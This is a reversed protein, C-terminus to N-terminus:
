WSGRRSACGPQGCRIAPPQPPRGCRRSWRAVQPDVAGLRALEGEIAGDDPALPLARALLNLAAAPGRGQAEYLFAAERLLRVRAGDDAAGVLRVECLGAAVALRGGGPPGPGAGRGGGGPQQGAGATGAGRGAGGRPGPQGALRPRLFRGGAAPRGAERPLRRGPPLLRAALRAERGRGGPGADRGARGLPPGAEAHWRSASRKVTETHRRAYTRRLETWTDIAAPPQALEAAQVRAVRMLDARIEAETRVGLHAPKLGGGAGGVDAGARVAGGARRAGVSRRSRDGAAPLVRGRASCTAGTRPPRAGGGAGVTARRPPPATQCSRRWAELVALREGPAEAAHPEALREALKRAASLKAAPGRREAPVQRYPGRRPPTASQRMRARLRWGCSWGAGADTTAAAATDLGRLYPRPDGQVRGPPAAAGAGSM